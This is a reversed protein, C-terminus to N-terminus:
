RNRTRPLPNKQSGAPVRVGQRYYTGQAFEAKREPKDSKTSSDTHPAEDKLVETVPQDPNREPQLRSVSKEPNEKRGASM